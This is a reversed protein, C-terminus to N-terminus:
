QCLIPMVILCEGISLSHLSRCQLHVGPSRVTLLATWSLHRSWRFHISLWYFVTYLRLSWCDSSESFAVFQGGICCCCLWCNRSTPFNLNCVRLVQLFFFIDGFCEFFPGARSCDNKRTFQLSAHRRRVRVKALNSLLCSSFNSFLGLLQCVISFSEWISLWVRRPHSHSLHCQTRDMFTM